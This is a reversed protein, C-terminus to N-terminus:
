EEDENQHYEHLTKRKNPRTPTFFPTIRPKPSRPPSYVTKCHSTSIDAAMYKRQEEFAALRIENSIKIKKEKWTYLRKLTSRFNDLELLLKPIYLSDIQHAVVVGQFFFLQAMYGIRGRWDMYEIDLEKKTINHINCAIASNIRINKSQQRNSITTSATLRKFETSCIEIVTDNYKTKSLMDMRRGSDTEDDNLIQMYQSAQSITEGDYIAVDNEDEFLIDMLEAFKRLYMNESYSGMVEDSEKAWFKFNFVAQQVIHLLKYGDSTKDPEASKQDDFYQLIRNTNKDFRYELLYDFLNDIKVTISSPLLTRRKECEDMIEKYITMDFEAAYKERYNCNMFNINCSLCLKMLEMDECDMKSQCILKAAKNLLVSVLGERKLTYLSDFPPITGELIRKKAVVRLQNSLHHIAQEIGEHEQKDSEQENNMVQENNVIQENADEEQEKGDEEQEENDEEQEENDEEQEEGDEENESGLERYKELSTSALKAYKGLTTISKVEYQAHVDRLAKIKKHIAQFKASARTPFKSLKATTRRTFTLNNYLSIWHKMLQLASTAGVDILAISKEKKTVFQNFTAKSTTELYSEVIQQKQLTKKNVEKVM